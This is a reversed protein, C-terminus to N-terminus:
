IRKFQKELDRTTLELTTPRGHPCNSSKQTLHRQALLAQMEETSLADGAKVAAKCAMMDLCQHILSDDLHPERSSTTESIRDLLDSVFQAPDLNPLLTPFSQVALSNKGFSSIEIGVRALTAAHDTAAQLQGATAEFTAPVLLRQSELPGSLIRDKFREYLIREHLAHQDIIVMGEDTEAVLYTNHIQVVSSAPSPSGHIQPHGDDTRADTVPSEKDQANQTSPGEGRGEGQFPSPTPPPFATRISPRLSDTAFRPPTFQI